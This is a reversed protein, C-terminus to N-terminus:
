FTGERADAAVDRICGHAAVRACPAGVKNAHGCIDCDRYDAGWAHRCDRCIFSSFVSDVAVIECVNHCRPCEDPYPLNHQEHRRRGASDGARLERRQRAAAQYQEEIASMTAEM